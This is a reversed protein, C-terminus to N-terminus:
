DNLNCYDMVIRKSRNKKGVFFVLSTQPSKSLRIYGKRLQDNIFNQVEERKDRSLPYIRRKQLKFMEKLDIAHDWIKRMPIRELEVKGFVKKQKLFRQPVMEKIKKHNAEVEEERRWDQKDEVAWRVVKEEKLIVVRKEKKAKQGKELKYKEWM